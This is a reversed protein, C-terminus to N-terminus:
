VNGDAAVRLASQVAVIAAVDALSEELVPDTARIILAIATLRVFGGATVVSPSPADDTVSFAARFLSAVPAPSVTTQFRVAVPLAAPDL